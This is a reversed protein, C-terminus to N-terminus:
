STLRFTADSRGTANTIPDLRLQYAYHRIYH